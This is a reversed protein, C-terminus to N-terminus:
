GKNESHVVRHNPIGFSNLWEKVEKVTETSPAFVEHVKKAAWHKGYNPSRPDSVDMLFSHGKELNSQALGIRVPLITDKQIRDKRKWGQSTTGKTEHAVNNSYIM